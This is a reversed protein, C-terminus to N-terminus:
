VYVFSKLYHIYMDASYHQQTYELFNLGSDILIISQELDYGNGCSQMMAIGRRIKCDGLFKYMKKKRIIEEALLLEKIAKHYQGKFSYIFAVNILTIIFKENWCVLSEYNKKNQNIMKNIELAVTKDSSIEIYKLMLIEYYFLNKLLFFDEWLSDEKLSSTMIEKNMLQDIHSLTKDLYNLLLNSENKERILRDFTTLHKKLDSEDFFIVSFFNELIQDTENKNIEKRKNNYLSDLESVSVNLNRLIDIVASFRLEITGAEFKSYTGQTLSVKVAIESQTMGRNLRINRIIENIM